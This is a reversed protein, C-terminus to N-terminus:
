QALHAIYLLRVKDAATSPVHLSQFIERTSNTQSGPETNYEVVIGMGRMLTASLSQGLGEARIRGDRPIFDMWVMGMRHAISILTGLSTSALPRVVDPPMLDWSRTKSIAFVISSLSDICDVEGLNPRGFFSHKELFLSARNMNSLQLQQGDHLATLLKTWSVVDEDDYDDLNSASRARTFTRRRDPSSGTLAVIQAGQLVYADYPRIEFHPTTVRVELRFSSRKRESTM